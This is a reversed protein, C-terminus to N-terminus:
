PLRWSRDVWRRYPADTWEGWRLGSRLFLRAVEGLIQAVRARSVGEVAAIEDFTMGEVFRHRLIRLRRESAHVRHRHEVLVERLRESVERSFVVREQIPELVFSPHPSKM